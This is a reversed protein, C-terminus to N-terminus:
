HEFATILTSKREKQIGMYADCNDHLKLIDHM